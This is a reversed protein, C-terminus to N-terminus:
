HPPSASGPATRVGGISPRSSQRGHATAIPSIVGPSAPISSGSSAMLSRGPITSPTAQAAAILPSAYVTEGFSFNSSNLLGPKGNCRDGSIFLHMLAEFVDGQFHDPDVCIDMEIRLGVLKAGEVALDTGM